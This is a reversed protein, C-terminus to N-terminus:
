QTDDRDIRALIRLEVTDDVMDAYGSAGFASRSISGTLYISLRERDGEVTGQQRYFQAFLTSPRTVGRVTFDGEIQASDGMPQIRRSVFRITPYTAADLVTASQLAETALFFGTRAGTVDVTVDVQSRSVTDLDIQLAAAVVPMSGEGLSDGFSFNFGVSSREVDLLYRVPEAAGATAIFLLFVTLLRM